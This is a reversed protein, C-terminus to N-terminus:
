INNIVKQLKEEVENAMATLNPNGIMGMVVSPRTAAVQVGEDLQRVIVNCPLMLGIEPELQIVEYASAPHCAGLIRYAPMDKGLKEKMKAALDIDSLLGFGEKKLEETTKNIAEEFTGSFLTEIAYHKM